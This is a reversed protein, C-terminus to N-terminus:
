SGFIVFIKCFKRKNKKKTFLFFYNRTLNVTTIKPVQTPMALWKNAKTSSSQCCWRFTALMIQCNTRSNFNLKIQILIQKHYVSKFANITQNIINFYFFTETCLFLSIHKLSILFPIHLKNIYM